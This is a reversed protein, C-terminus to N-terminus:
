KVFPFHERLERKLERVDARTEHAASTTRDLQTELRDFRADFDELRKRVEVIEALAREWIPKTDSARAELKELRENFDARMEALASLVREEFRRAGPQEQTLEENVEERRNENIYPAALTM